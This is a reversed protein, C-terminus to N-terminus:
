RGRRRATRARRRSGLASASESLATAPTRLDSRLFERVAAPSRLRIVPYSTLERPWDRRRAFHTRLAFVFLSDWGLIASAVSERNDNWLPERGRLRRWTRRTLRPLWVRVPLDLWVILDAADLVLRGLKRQYTGDIVWSESAVIPAVLARLVEDPTEVWNPGHM